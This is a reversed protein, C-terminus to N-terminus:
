PPASILSGPADPAVRAGLTHSASTARRSGTGSRYRLEMRVVSRCPGNLSHWTRRGQHRGQSTLAVSGSHTAIQRGAGDGEEERIDLARRFEHMFKPRLLVRLHERLMSQDRKAFTM